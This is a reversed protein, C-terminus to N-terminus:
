TAKSALSIAKSATLAKPGIRCRTAELSSGACSPSSPTVASSWVASGLPNSALTRLSGLPPQSQAPRQPSREVAQTPELCFLRRSLCGDQRYKGRRAWCWRLGAGYGYRTECSRYAGFQFTHLIKASRMGKQGEHETITAHM